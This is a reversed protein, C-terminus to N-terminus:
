NDYDIENFLVDNFLDAIRDFEDDDDITEFTIDEGDENQRLIVFEEAEDIGAPVFAVYVTGEIEVSALVELDIDEGTEEDTLTYIMDEIEEPNDNNLNKEFDAM